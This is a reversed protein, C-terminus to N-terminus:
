DLVVKHNKLWASMQEKAALVEEATLKSEVDEIGSVNVGQVGSNKLVLMWKFATVKDVKTGRGELYMSALTGIARASGKESARQLYEVAKAHDQVVGRGARY